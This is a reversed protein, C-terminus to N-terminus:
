PRPLFGFEALITQGSDSTIWGIFAEAGDPNAAERLPAIEYVIAPNLGEPIELFDLGAAVGSVADTQYVIGADVEGTVVKTGVGSVSQELSVANAWVRDVFSEDLGRAQMFAELFIQTYRGVPVSRDAMALKVGSRALDAVDTIGSPNGEALVVVLANSALTQVRELDVLGAEVLMDMEQPDASAFVDAQAGEELQTRLQQSGAFEFEPDLGRSAERFAPEAAEFPRSLSAAAFVMVRGGAPATLSSCAALGIAIFGALRAQGHGM